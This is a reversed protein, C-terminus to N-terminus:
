SKTVIEYTIVDSYDGPEQNDSGYLDFTPTFCTQNASSDFKVTSNNSNPLLLQKGGSDLTLTYPLTNTPKLDHKLVFRNNVMGNANTANVIFDKGKSETSLYSICLRDASNTLVKQQKGIDIEGLTWNPANMTINVIEQPSDPFDKWQCSSTALSPSFFISGSSDRIVFREYDNSPSVAIMAVDAHKVNITVTASNPEYNQWSAPTSGSASTTLYGYGNNLEGAAYTVPKDGNMSINVPRIYDAIPNGSSNYQYIVFARSLRPGFSGPPMARWNVTFSAQWTNGATKTTTCNTAGSIVNSGTSPFDRGYASSAGISLLAFFYTLYKM